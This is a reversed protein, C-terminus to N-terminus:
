IDFVIFSTPTLRLYLDYLVVIAKGDIVTSDPRRFDLLAALAALTAADLVNGDDDLIHVDLRISWVQEGPLICLSETDVTRGHKFLRELLRTAALIKDEQKDEAEDSDPRSLSADVYIGLIGELPREPYPRTVQATVVALVKTQGLHVIVHGKQEKNFECAVERHDELNRKDIRLGDAMAKKVFYCENLSVTM